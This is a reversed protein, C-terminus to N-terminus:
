KKRYMFYLAIGLIIMGMAGMTNALKKEQVIGEERQAIDPTSRRYGGYVSGKEIKELGM